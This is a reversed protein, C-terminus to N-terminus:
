GCQSWPVGGKDVTENCMLGMPCECTQECLIQCQMQLEIGVFTQCTYGDPCQADSECDQGIATADETIPACGTETGQTTSSTDTTSTPEDIWTTEDPGAYTVADADADDPGDNVTTVGTATTGVSGASTESTGWEDPGAYTVADASDDDAITVTSKGSKDDSCSTAALGLGLVLGLGLRAPAPAHRQSAGCFPCSSERARILCACALCDVYALM